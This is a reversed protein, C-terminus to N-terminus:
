NDNLNQFKAVNGSWPPPIRKDSLGWHPSASFLWIFPIGSCLLVPSAIYNDTIILDPKVRAIINKYQDAREKVDALMKWAGLKFFFKEAIISVDKEKLIHCNQEMFKPWFEKDEESEPATSKVLEEEVGFPKLKDKFAADVAFVIRHGRERLEQALGLGANVHGWGDLPSFLVTLKKHSMVEQQSIM